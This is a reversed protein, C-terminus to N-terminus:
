TYFLNLMVSVLTMKTCGNLTIDIFDDMYKQFQDGIALAIEKICTLSSSKISASVLSNQLHSYLINMIQDCQGMNMLISFKGVLKLASSCSRVDYFNMSAPFLFSIFIEPYNSHLIELQGSMNKIIKEQDEIRRQLIKNQDM